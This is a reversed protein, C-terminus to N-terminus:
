LEKEIKLLAERFHEIGQAGVIAHKEDIIFTPTSNIEYDHAEKSVESLINDYYGENLKIILDESDLGISKAISSLVDIDGIDKKLTFYNHFLEEHFEHFKGKEKAYEGGALAFHSNSLINYENFEIGYQKGMAKLNLLMKNLSAAPFRKTLEMGEKPTDPHIELPLWEDEIDFEEKM